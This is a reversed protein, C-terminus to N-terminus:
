RHRAYIKLVSGQIHWGPRLRYAGRVRQALPEGLAHIIGHQKAEQKSCPFSANMLPWPSPPMWSISSRTSSQPTLKYRTGDLHSKFTVGKMLKACPGLSMVQFGGSDTLLPGEWGM